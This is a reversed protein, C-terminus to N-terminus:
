FMLTEVPKGVIKKEVSSLIESVSSVYKVNEYAGFKMRFESFSSVRM